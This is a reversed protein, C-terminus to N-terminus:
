NNLLLITIIGHIVYVGCNVVLATSLYEWFEAIEHALMENIDKRM